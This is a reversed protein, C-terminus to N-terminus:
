FRNIYIILFGFTHRKFCFGIALGKMYLALVFKFFDFFSNKKGSFRLFFDNLKFFDFMNSHGINARM